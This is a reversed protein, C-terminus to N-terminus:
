CQNDSRIGVRNVIIRKEFGNGSICISGQRHALGRPSFLITNGSITYDFRIRSLENSCNSNNVGCSVIILYNGSPSVEIYEYREMALNKAWRIAYELRSAEGQFKYAEYFDQWKFVAITTLIIIISIVVILEVLTIGKFYVKM